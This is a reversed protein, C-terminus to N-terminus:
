QIQYNNVEIGLSLLRDKPAAKFKCNISQKIDSKLNVSSKMYTSLIGISKSNCSTKAISETVGKVGCKIILLQGSTSKCLIDSADFLPHSSYLFPKSQM